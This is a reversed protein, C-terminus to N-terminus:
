LLECTFGVQKVFFGSQRELIINVEGNSWCTKRRAGPGWMQWTVTVRQRKTAFEDDPQAMAATTFNWGDLAKLQEQCRLQFQASKSKSALQKFDFMSCRSCRNFTKTTNQSFAELQVGKKPGNKNQRDKLLPLHVGANCFNPVMEFGTNM